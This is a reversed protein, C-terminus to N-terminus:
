RSGKLYGSMEAQSTHINELTGSIKELVKLQEVGNAQITTLCNTRQKELEEKVADLVAFREKIATFAYRLPFVIIYGGLVKIALDSVVKVTDPSM